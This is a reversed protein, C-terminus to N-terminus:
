NSQESPTADHRVSQSSSFVEHHQWCLISQGRPSSRMDDSSMGASRLDSLSPELVTLNLIVTLSLSPFTNVTSGRSKLSSPVKLM